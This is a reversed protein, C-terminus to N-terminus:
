YFFSPLFFISPTSALILLAEFGNNTDCHDNYLYIICPSVDGYKCEEAAGDNLVGNLRNLDDFQAVLSLTLSSGSDSNESNM